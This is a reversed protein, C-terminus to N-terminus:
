RPNFIQDLAQAGFRIGLLRISSISILGVSELLSYVRKEYLPEMCVGWLVMFVSGDFVGIREYGRGM